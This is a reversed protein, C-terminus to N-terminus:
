NDSCIISQLHENIEKIQEGNISINRISSVTYNIKKEEKLITSNDNQGLVKFGCNHLLENWNKFGCIKIIHRSCPTHKDRLANYKDQTPYNNKIYQEKFNEIWYEAGQYHYVSSPCKKVYQKYYKFYFQEMTLGFRNKITPHKPLKPNNAIDSKGPLRNNDLIYQDFADFITKDSCHCIPLEELLSGLVNCIEKNKEEKGLIAWLVTKSTSEAIPIKPM